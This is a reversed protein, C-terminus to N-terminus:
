KKPPHNVGVNLSSSSFSTSEFVPYAAQRHIRKGHYVATSAGDAKASTRSAAQASVVVLSGAALAAIAITLHGKSM